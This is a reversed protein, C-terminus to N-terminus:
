GTLTMISSYTCEKLRAELLTAADNKPLDFFLSGQSFCATAGPAQSFCRFQANNRNAYLRMLVPSGHPLRHARRRFSLVSCSDRILFQRTVVSSAVPCQPCYNGSVRVAASSSLFCHHKAAHRRRAPQPVSESISSPVPDILRCTSRLKTVCIKDAQFQFDNDDKITLGPSWHSRPAQLKSNYSSYLRVAFSRTKEWPNKTRQRAMSRRGDGRRPRTSQRPALPRLTSKRLGTQCVWDRERRGLHFGSRGAPAANGHYTGRKVHLRRARPNLVPCCINSANKPPDSVLLGALRGSGEVLQM